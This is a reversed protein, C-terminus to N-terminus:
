KARERRIRALEKYYSSCSNIDRKELWGVAPCWNCYDKLECGRCQYASDPKISKTHKVLENWGEAVSGRRLDYQPLRCELCLNMEGYPTIALSNKGANCYFFSVKQCSLEKNEMPNKEKEILHPLYRSELDIAEEPSIRYRLPEKSGNIRPHILYDWLFRAGLNDAYAKIRDFEALNLTMVMMKISININNQQLLQIGKLCKTLSGPIQSVDEYTKPTMGYLSIEVKNIDLDKLGEAIRSTILTANTLLVTYFGKRKAYTLIKFFDPRALPEGGTLNLHFCGSDALQDLISCTESYSIEKRKQRIIESKRRVPIYCHQCLLNCRYTLEFTAKFPM